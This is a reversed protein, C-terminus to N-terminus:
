GSSLGRGLVCLPSCRLPIGLPLAWLDIPAGVADLGWPHVGLGKRGFLAIVVAGAKLFEGVWEKWCHDSSPGLSRSM